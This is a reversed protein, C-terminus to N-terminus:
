FRKLRQRVEEVWIVCAFSSQPAIFEELNGKVRGLLRGTLSKSGDHILRSMDLVRVFEALVSKRVHANISPCLTRLLLQYNRGTFSPSHYLRSVTASYWSRSVLCCAWLSHQSSPHGPIFSLIHLIIEQPLQLSHRESHLRLSSSEDSCSAMTPKAGVPKPGMRHRNRIDSARLGHRCNTHARSKGYSKLAPIEM